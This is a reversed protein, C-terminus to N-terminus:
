VFCNLILVFLGKKTIAISLIQGTQSLFNLTGGLSSDTFFTQELAQADSIAFCFRTVNVQGTQSFDISIGADRSPLRTVQEGSHALLFFVL